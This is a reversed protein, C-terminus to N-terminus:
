LTPSTDQKSYIDALLSPKLSMDTPNLSINPLVNLLPNMYSFYFINLDLFLFYSSGNQISGNMGSGLM